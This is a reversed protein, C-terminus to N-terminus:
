GPTDRKSIRWNEKSCGRETLVHSFILYSVKLVENGEKFERQYNDMQKQAFKSLVEKKTEPGLASVVSSADLILQQESATLHKL